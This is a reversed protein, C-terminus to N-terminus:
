QAADFHIAQLKSNWPSHQQPMLPMLLMRAAESRNAMSRDVTCLPEAQGKRLPYGASPLHKSSGSSHVFVAGSELVCVCVSLFLCVCKAMVSLCVCVSHEAIFLLWNSHVANVYIQVFQVKCKWHSAEGYKKQRAFRSTCWRWCVCCCVCSSLWVNM